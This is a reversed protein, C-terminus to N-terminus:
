QNYYTDLVASAMPVATTSGAGGDEAIVAVVLKEGELSGYGVFWSHTGISGGSQVYDASGTKGYVEYNRGSLASATGNQVVNKMLTQLTNAEELTMLDQYAGYEEKSIEVGQTNEVRDILHPEMLEGDNAIASVILAMHYPNTLTQGQGFATQVIEADQSTDTMTYRSRTTAVPSPLKSGFLMEEATDNLKEAGIEIGMTGFATNCSHAFATMLDEQGHISNGYCHVVTEGAQLSGTCNYNFGEITGYKQYYSLATVIKFTSGPAYLGQTARNVLQSNSEDAVIEDYTSIITNPDFDPKSVMAKIEGTTPDICVIAGNYSGLASYAASQLSHDLTTVVTDGPNKEEAFGNVIQDLINTHSTLLEYNAESELGSKGHSDFGIVHAYVNSYPYVRTENGEEDTETTALIEGDRSVIDGRVVYDAASNQRKNYPSSLIEDKKEVNFYVVYVILSLFILIFAYTVVKFPWGKGSQNDRPKAPSGSGGRSSNSQRLSATNSTRRRSTNERVDKGDLIDRVDSGIKLEADEQQDRMSQM